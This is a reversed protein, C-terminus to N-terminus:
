RLAALRERVKSAWPSNPDQRLYALWHGRAGAFNEQSAMTEALNYHADAYFPSIALARQYANIADKYKGIEALTNGLNNWAEIYDTDIQTAQTFCATAEANRNMAYFTNGLNFCVEPQPSGMSLAEQYAEVASDFNGSEEAAIGIRVWGDATERRPTMMPLAEQASGDAQTTPADQAFDLLLQGSPDALHGTDLRILLDGSQTTAELQSLDATSKGQWESIQALSQLIRSATIGANTLQQLRRAMAIQSFEFYCLRREVKFPSILGERVWTRIKALPENLIRSLQAITYLRQLSAAERRNKILPLFEAEELIKVPKGLALLDRARRLAQTPRGDPGLPPGDGGIVVYATNDTPIESHRGGVARIEQVATERSMSALRGTITIERDCLAQGRSKYIGTM